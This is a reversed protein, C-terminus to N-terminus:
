HLYKNLCLPVCRPAQLMRVILWLSMMRKGYGWHWVVRSWNGRGRREWVMQMVQRLIIHANACSTHIPQMLMGTSLCLIKVHNGLSRETLAIVSPAFFMAEDDPHAILLCIRKNRLRPFRTQAVTVTYYWVALLLIPIALLVIYLLIGGGGGGASAGGPSLNATAPNAVIVKPTPTTTIAAAAPTRSLITRPSPRLPPKNSSAPPRLPQKKKVAAPAARPRDDEYDLYTPKRREM